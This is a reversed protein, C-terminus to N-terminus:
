WIREVVRHWNGVLPESAVASPLYGNPLRPAQGDARYVFNVRQGFSGVGNFVVHLAGQERYVTVQRQGAGNSVSIPYEPPLAAISVNPSDYWGLEGREMRQVVETRMALHWQFDLEEAWRGIPLLALVVVALGNVLLPLSARASGGSRATWCHAASWVSSLIYGLVALVGFASAGLEGLGDLVVWGLAQTALLWLTTVVALLLPWRPSLSKQKAVKEMM